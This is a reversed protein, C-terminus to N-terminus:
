KIVGLRKTIDKEKLSNYYNKNKLIGTSLKRLDM